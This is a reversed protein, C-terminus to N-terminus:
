QIKAEIKQAYNVILDETVENETGMATFMVIVNAKRFVLMYVNMELDAYNGGVMATEEGVDPPDLTELTLDPLNAQFGKQMDNVLDGKMEQKAAAVSETTFVISMIMGALESSAFMRLNADLVDGESVDQIEDVGQDARLSWDGGLDAATFNIEAAAMEVIPAQTSSGCALTSALLVLVAIVPIVCTHKM